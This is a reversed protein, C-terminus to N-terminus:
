APLRIPLRVTLQWHQPGVLGAEFEGDPLRVREALGPLGHGSTPFTRPGPGTGAGAGTRDVVGLRLGDPAAAVRVEIPGGAGHRLAHTLGEQLIRYAARSLTGQLQTLEGSLEPEVVAGAHRLRELLGPLDALTRTPPSCRARWRRPPRPRTTPRLPWWLSRGLLAALAPVTVLSLVLASLLIGLTLSFATQESGPNTALTAFSGALALGATAVAPATHRVARAVAGRPSGSRGTEERIRDAILINYDTGLAVVFLFLVLPLTFNVGPRDLAHQFLLTAAGLTAAFGLGVALMLVVPALLSRLLLLLILAILGATTPLASSVGRSTSTHRSIAVPRSLAAIASAM